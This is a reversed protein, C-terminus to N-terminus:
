GRGAEEDREIVIGPKMTEPVLMMQHWEEPSMHRPMRVGVVLDPRVPIRLDIVGEAM